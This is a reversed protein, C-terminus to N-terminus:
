KQCVTYRPRAARVKNRQRKSGKQNEDWGDDGGAHGRKDGGM